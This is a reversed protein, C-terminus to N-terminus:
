STNRPTENLTKAANGCRTRLCRRATALSAACKEGAWAARRQREAVYAEGSMEAVGDGHRRAAGGGQKKDGAGRRGTVNTARNTETQQALLSESYLADAWAVRRQRGDTWGAMGSKGLVMGGM